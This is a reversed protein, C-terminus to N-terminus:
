FVSNKFTHSYIRYPNKVRTVASYVHVSFLTSFFCTVGTGTVLILIRWYKRGFFSKGFGLPDKDRSIGRSDMRAALSSTSLAICCIRVLFVLVRPLYLQNTWQLTRISNMIIYIYYITTVSVFISCSYCLINTLETNCCSRGVKCPLVFSRDALCSYM